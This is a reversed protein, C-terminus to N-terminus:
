GPALEEASLEGRPHLVSVAALKLNGIKGKLRAQEHQVKQIGPAGELSVAVGGAEQLRACVLERVHRGACDDLDQLKPNVDVARLEAPKLLM